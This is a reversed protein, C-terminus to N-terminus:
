ALHVWQGGWRIWTVVNGNLRLNEFNNCFATIILILNSM